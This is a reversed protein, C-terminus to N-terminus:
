RKIGERLVATGSNDQLKTRLNSSYGALLDSGIFFVLVIILLRLIWWLVLAGGILWFPFVTLYVAYYNKTHRWRGFVFFLGRSSRWSIRRLLTGSVPWSIRRSGCSCSGCSVLNLVSSFRHYFPSSKLKDPIGGGGGCGRSRDMSTDTNSLRLSHSFAKQYARPIQSLERRPIPTRGEPCPPIAQPLAHPMYLSHFYPSLIEASHQYRFSSSTMEYVYIFRNIGGAVGESSKPSECTSTTWECNPLRKRDRSGLRANNKTSPSSLM